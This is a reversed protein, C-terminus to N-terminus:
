LMYQRIKQIKMKLLLFYAILFSKSFDLIRLNNGQYYKRLLFETFAASKTIPLSPPYIKNFEELLAIENYKAQEVGANREEKTSMEWDAFEQGRFVYLETIGPTIYHIDKWTSLTLEVFFEGVM